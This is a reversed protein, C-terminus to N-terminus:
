APIQRSHRKTRAAAITRAAFDGKYAAFPMEIRNRERKSQEFAPSNTPVHAVDRAREHISRPIKSALHTPAVREIVAKAVGNALLQCLPEIDVITAAKLDISIKIRTMRCPSFSM